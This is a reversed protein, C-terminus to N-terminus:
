GLNKKQTFRFFAQYTAVKAHLTVKSVAKTKKDNNARRVRAHVM